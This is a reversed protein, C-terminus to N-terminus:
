PHKWTVHLVTCNCCSSSSCFAQIQREERKIRNGKWAREWAIPKEEKSNKKNQKTQKNTQKNKCCCMAWLRLSSLTASYVVWIHWAEESPPSVRLYYSDTMRHVWPRLDTDWDRMAGLLRDQETTEQALCLQEPQAMLCRPAPEGYIPTTLRSGRLVHEYSGWLPCAGWSFISVPFGGGGPVVCVLWMPM